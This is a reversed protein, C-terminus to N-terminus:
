VPREILSCVVGGVQRGCSGCLSSGLLSSFRTLTEHESRARVGEKNVDYVCVFVYVRARAHARMRVNVCM